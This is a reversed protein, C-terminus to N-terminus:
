GLETAQNLDGVQLEENSVFVDEAKVVMVMAIALLAINAAQM